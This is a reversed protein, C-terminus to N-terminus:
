SKNFFAYDLSIKGPGTFILAIFAAIYLYRLELVGFGDGVLFAHLYIIVIFNITLIIAAYRTFLGLILLIACIGEAFAALYFSVEAGLGLPDGFQIEAGSFVTSLKGAGHGYLLVVCFVIRIILLGIDNSYKWNKTLFNSM